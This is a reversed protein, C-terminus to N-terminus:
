VRDISCFNSKSVILNLQIIVRYAEIHKLLEGLSPNVSHSQTLKTQFYEVYQTEVGRTYENLYNIDISTLSYNDTKLYKNSCSLLVFQGHLHFLQALHSEIMEHRSKTMAEIDNEVSQLMFNISEKVKKILKRMRAYLDVLKNVDHGYCLSWNDIRLQSLQSYIMLIKICYLPQNSIVLAAASNQGDPDTQDSQAARSKQCLEILKNVYILLRAYYNIYTDETSPLNDSELKKNRSTLM